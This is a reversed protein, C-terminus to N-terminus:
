NGPDSNLKAADKRPHRDRIAKDWGEANRRVASPLDPRHALASFYDRLDIGGAREGGEVIMQALLEVMTSSPKRDLSGIALAQCEEVGKACQVFGRPFDSEAPYAECLKAMEPFVEGLGHQISIERMIRRQEGEDTQPTLKALEKRVVSLERPYSFRPLGPLTYGWFGYPLEAPGGRAHGCGISLRRTGDSYAPEAKLGIRGERMTFTLRSFPGDRTGDGSAQQVMM